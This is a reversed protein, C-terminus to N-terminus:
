AMDEASRTDGVVEEVRLVLEALDGRLCSVPGLDPDDGQAHKIIVTKAFANLQDVAPMNEGMAVKIEKAMEESDKFRKTIRALAADIDKRIDFPKGDVPIKIM